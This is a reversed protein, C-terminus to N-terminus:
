PAPKKTFRQYNRLFEIFEMVMKVFARWDIRDQAVPVLHEGQLVGM